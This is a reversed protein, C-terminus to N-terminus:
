MRKKGSAHGTPRLGKRPAIEHRLWMSIFAIKRTGHRRKKFLLVGAQLSAAAEPLYDTEL